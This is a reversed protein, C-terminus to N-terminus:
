MIYEQTRIWKNCVWKEHDTPLGAHKSFDNFSDEARTLNFFFIANGTTPKFKYNLNPFYTEGGREVDNLYILFTSHRLGLRNRDNKCITSNLPVCCDYHEKYEQGKAYNVVQLPEQNEKPKGSLKETITDIKDLINTIKKQKVKQKHLFTNTSTRINSVGEKSMIGSRKLDPRAENIVLLCEEKSLINKIEYVIYKGQRFVHKVINYKSKYVQQTYLHIGFGTLILVLIVNKLYDM